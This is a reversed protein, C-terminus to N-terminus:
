MIRESILNSLIIFERPTLNEPRLKSWGRDELINQIDSREIRNNFIDASIINKLMKRRKIFCSDVTKKYIHYDMPPVDFEEKPTFKLVSSNVSPEPYFRNKGVELRIAVEFLNQFKVSINGYKKNNPKSVIREAFERQIMITSGIFEESFKIKDHKYGIIDVLKGFFNSTISYPLNSFIYSDYSLIERELNNLIDENIIEVEYDKYREKLFISLRDDKEYITLPIRREVIIDTLIGLGAGIEVYRDIGEVPIGDCIERAIDTDFLFNQSLRKNPIIGIDQIRKKLESIMGSDMKNMRKAGIVM